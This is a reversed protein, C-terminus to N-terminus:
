LGRLRKRQGCLDGQAQATASGGSLALVRVADWIRALVLQSHRSAASGGDASAARNETPCTGAALKGRQRHDMGRGAGWEAFPVRAPEGHAPLVVSRQLDHSTASTGYEEGSPRQHFSSISTRPDHLVGDSELSIKFRTVAYISCRPWNKGGTISALWNAASSGGAASSPTISIPMPRVGASITSAIMAAAPAAAAAPDSGKLADSPWGTM